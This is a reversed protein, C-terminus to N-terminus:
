SCSSLTRQHLHRKLLICVIHLVGHLTLPVYMSPAVPMVVMIVILDGSGHGGHRSSSAILIPYAAVRTMAERESAGENYAKRAYKAHAEGLDTGGACCSCGVQTSHHMSCYMNVM